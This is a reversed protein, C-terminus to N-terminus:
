TRSDQKRGTRNPRDTRGIYQDAQGPRGTRNQRVHEALGTRAIRKQGARATERLLCKSAARDLCFQGPPRTRATRELCDQRSLASRVTKNQMDQDKKETKDQWELDAHGRRGTM